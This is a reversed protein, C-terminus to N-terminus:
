RRLWWLATAVGSLSLGIAAVGLRHIVQQQYLERKRAVAYGLNSFTVMGYLSHWWGSPLRQSLVGDLWKRYLYRRSVVHSRMETYNEQALTQIAEVDAQRRESYTRLALVKALRLSGYEHLAADLIEMFVRVDELGCNLGQGYFPVMAHAADGLLVAASGAHMQRCQVSGLPSPRRSTLRKVVNDEGMLVMADPFNEQFFAKASAANQLRHEYLQFPAFLTATFSGDLNPLAILMYDHRPWIHLCSPDLAWRERGEGAKAPIYLETYGSDIYEQVTRWRASASLKQRVVSHMGDCGLVLISSVSTLHQAYRTEKAEGSVQFWLQTTEDDSARQLQVLTHEFFCRIHPHGRAHELLLMNLKARDFAYIAQTLVSGVKGDTSYEQRAEHSTGNADSTHIMRATM